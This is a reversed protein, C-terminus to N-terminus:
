PKDTDGFKRETGRVLRMINKHHLGITLTSGFVAYIFYIEPLNGTFSLIVITIGGAISGLMSGLSVYRTFVMIPAAALIAVLGSIPSLVILASWGSAVGKGGKFNTFVPWSHGVIVALGIVPHSWLPTHAIYVAIYLPLAAKGMDLALVIIGWLIGCTRAVNTAGTSGSGCERIDIGKSLKGILLGFSISGIIYSSLIITIYTLETSV